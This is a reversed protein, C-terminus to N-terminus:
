ERFSSHRPEKAWLRRSKNKNPFIKQQMGLLLVKKKYLSVTASLSTMMNLAEHSLYIIMDGVQSTYDVAAHMAEVNSGHAREGICFGGKATMKRSM